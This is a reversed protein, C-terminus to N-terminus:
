QLAPHHGRHCIHQARRLHQEVIAIRIDDEALAANAGKLRCGAIGEVNRGNRQELLYRMKRHNGIGAMRRPMAFQHRRQRANGYGGLGIAQDHLHM